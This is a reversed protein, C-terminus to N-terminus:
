NASINKFDAFFANVIDAFKQSTTADVNYDGTKSTEFCEPGYEKKTAIAYRYKGVVTREGYLPSVNGDDVSTSTQWKPSDSPLRLVFAIYEGKCSIGAPGILNDVETAYVSANDPDSPSQKPTTDVKYYAGVDSSSLPIKVGWEKITLYKTAIQQSLDTFTKGDKTVCQEPYTMLMNSGTAKKCEEFTTIKKTKISSQSAANADSLAKTTNQNAHWVYYGTGGIIVIVILILITEVAAFGKEKM